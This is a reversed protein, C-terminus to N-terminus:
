KSLYKEDMTKKREEYFIGIAIQGETKYSWKSAEEKAKELGAPEIKVTNKKLYDSTNHFVICPQLIDIFSLGKHKIAKKFVEEMHLLELASVRAVFSAGNELALSIPNIPKEQVGEPHTKEVFGEETTSTAQGITLSFVQNNFVLLTIDPNYRCAHLFHEMGENYTGGDGACVIVKLKPNGLNIGIASPIARGHLGDFASMDLYDYIKSNCGIDTVLVLEEKKWGEEKILATMARELAAKIMFDPCGACWTNPNNTKFM